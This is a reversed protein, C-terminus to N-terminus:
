PRGFAGILAWRGAAVYRIEAFSYQIINNATTGLNPSFNDDTWVLAEIEDTGDAAINWGAAGTGQAYFVTLGITCGASPPLGFTPAAESKTLRYYKGSEAATPTVLGSDTEIPTRGQNAKANLATQVGAPVGALDLYQEDAM